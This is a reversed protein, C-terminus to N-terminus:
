LTKHDVNDIEVVSEFMYYFDSCMERFVDIDKVKEYIYYAVDFASLINNYEDTIIHLKSPLITMPLKIDYKTLGGIEAKELQNEDLEVLFYVEDKLKRAVAKCVIDRSISVDGEFDVIEVFYKRYEIPIESAKVETSFMYIFSNIIGMIGKGGQSVSVNAGDEVLQSSLGISPILGNHFISVINKRNTFHFYDNNLDCYSLSISM